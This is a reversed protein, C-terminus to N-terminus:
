GLSPPHFLSLAGFTIEAEDLERNTPVPCGPRHHIIMKTTTWNLRAAKCAVMLGDLEGANILSLVVDVGAGSLFALAAVVNAYEHEAAFRNVSRDNLGGKRALQAMIPQAASCDALTLASVETREATKVVAARIKGQLAPSAAQISRVRDDVVKAALEKRLTSPLDSRRALAEALGADQKAKTVLVACGADSFRAGLNAVLRALVATEGCEVLRDSLQPAISQRGCIDLLHQQSGNEVIKLLDDHTLNVSRRLVPGAVASDDHFALHRMTKKPEAGQGALDNGLSALAEKDADAILHLFVEDFVAIQSENCHHAQALFLRAVQLLIQTRRQPSRNHGSGELEAILAVSATPEM